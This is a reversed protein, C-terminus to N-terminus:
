RKRLVLDRTAAECKPLAAHAAAWATESRAISESIRAAEEPPIGHGSNRAAAAKLERGADRQAREADLLGAHVAVCQNRVETLDPHAIPLARLADLLTERREVPSTVDLAQLADLLRAAEARRADECSCAAVLICALFIATVTRM